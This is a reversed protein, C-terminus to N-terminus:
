AASNRGCSRHTHIRHRTTTGVFRSRMSYEYPHSYVNVMSLAGTM